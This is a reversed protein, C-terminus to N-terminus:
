RGRISIISSKQDAGEKKVGNAVKRLIDQRLKPGTNKVKDINLSIGGEGIQKPELRLHSITHQQTWILNQIEELKRCRRSM